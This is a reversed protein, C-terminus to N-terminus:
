LLLLIVTIVTVSILHKGGSGDQYVVVGLATGGVVGVKFDDCHFM